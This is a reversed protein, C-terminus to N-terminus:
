NDLTEVVCWEFKKSKAKVNGQFPPIYFNRAVENGPCFPGPFLTSNRSIKWDRVWLIGTRLNPAPCAWSVYQANLFKQEYKKKEPIIKVHGSPV